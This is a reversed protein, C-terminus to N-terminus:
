SEAYLMRVRRGEEGYIVPNRLGARTALDCITEPKFYTKNEALHRFKARGADNLFDWFIFGSNVLSTRASRLLEEGQEAGYHSLLVGRSVVAGAAPCLAQLRFCDGVIFKSRPVQKSQAIRIMRPSIDVGVGWAFSSVVRALILGTACGADILGQVRCFDQRRHIVSALQDLFRQYAADENLHCAPDQLDRDWADAKADWRAAVAELKRLQYIDKPGTQKSPLHSSM